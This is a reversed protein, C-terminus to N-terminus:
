DSVPLKQVKPEGASFLTYIMYSTQVNEQPLNHFFFHTLSFGHAHRCIDRLSVLVCIKKTISLCTIAQAPSVCQSWLSGLHAWKSLKAM